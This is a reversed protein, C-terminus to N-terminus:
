RSTVVTTAIISAMLAVQIGAVTESVAKGLHEGESIEKIRKKASKREEKTFVESVLDCANILSILVTMRADSKEQGLVVSRIRLRIENEPSADDTPYRKSPIVWLIRHEEKRLIGNEILRDLLRGRLNKVVGTMKSVWSETNRPRKAQQIRTLAEDLIDDGTPGSDVVILKKGESRVKDRLILEMLVAGSLGYDLGMSSASLVNGKEDDVALLLLEEALTLM